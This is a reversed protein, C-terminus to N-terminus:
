AEEFKEEDISVAWGLTEGDKWGGDARGQELLEWWGDEQDQRAILRCYANESVYDEVVVLETM